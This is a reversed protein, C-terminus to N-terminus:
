FFRLRKNLSLGMATATTTKKFGRNTNEYCIRDIFEKVVQRVLWNNRIICRETLVSLVM